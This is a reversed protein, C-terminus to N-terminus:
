HASLQRAAREAQLKADMAELDAYMKNVDFGEWARHSDRISRNAVWVASNCKFGSGFGLQWVRDGKSVRGSHEMYALIYWVSTSSTNGFQYLAARSPEVAKKPLALEKEITDIVGRGGTHICMHEFAKKFDPTYPRTWTLPMQQAAAKSASAVKRAALNAAFLLQESLPLVLPGLSTLNARLARAAVGM